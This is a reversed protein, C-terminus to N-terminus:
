YNNVEDCALLGICLVALVLGRRLVQMVIQRTESLPEDQHRCPQGTRSEDPRPWPWLIGLVCNRIRRVVGFWDKLTRRRASM